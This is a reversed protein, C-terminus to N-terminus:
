LGCFGRRFIVKGGNSLARWKSKSSFCGKVEVFPEGLSMWVNMAYFLAKQNTPVPPNQPSNPSTMTSSSSQSVGSLYKWQAEGTSLIRDLSWSLVQLIYCFCFINVQCIRLRYVLLVKLCGGKLSAPNRPPIRFRTKPRTSLYTLSDTAMLCPDATNATATLWRSAILRLIDAIIIILLLLWALCLIKVWRPGVSPFSHRNVKTAYNGEGQWVPGVMPRYRSNSPYYNCTSM